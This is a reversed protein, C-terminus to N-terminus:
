SNQQLYPTDTLQKKLLEEIDSKEKETINGSTVKESLQREYSDTLEKIVYNRTELLEAVKDGETVKSIEWKGSENMTVEIEDTAGFLNHENALSEQYAGVLFFGLFYPKGDPAHLDLITRVDKRDIFKELCGDSDCTIDVITAKQSPKKEHHSLSDCSVASRYGM